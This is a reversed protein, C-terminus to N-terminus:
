SHFVHHSQTIFPYEPSDELPCLAERHVKTSQGLCRSCEELEVRPNTLRPRQATEFDRLKREEGIARRLGPGAMM